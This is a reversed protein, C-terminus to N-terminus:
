GGPVTLNTQSEARFTWGRATEADRAARAGDPMGRWLRGDLLAADGGRKDPHGGLQKLFFAVNAESCRDRLERLWNERMPRCRPGSEGGAIVWDIGRLDLAELPGLLPEASIFRVAAPVQRLADARQVFRRNEVSVGMWVNAPWPLDPALEILRDERKTLIQFIHQRAAVMTAFVRQIYERPIDEHFLDSMSNVFVVRPRRWSLPQGLREPRLRLDFGDEYAHGAVGRWREAFTEAYCHACGPSVKSCGTVPNWTTETWEIKSADSV